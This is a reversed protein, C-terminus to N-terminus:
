NEPKEQQHVFKGTIKQCPESVQQVQYTCRSKEVIHVRESNTVSNSCHLIGKSGQNNQNKHQYQCFEGQLISFFAQLLVPSFTFIVVRFRGLINWATAGHFGQNVHTLRTAPFHSNKGSFQSSEPCFMKGEFPHHKVMVAKYNQWNSIALLPKGSKLTSVNMQGITLVKAVITYLSTAQM